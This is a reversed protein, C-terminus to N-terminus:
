KKGRVHDDEIWRCVFLLSLSSRSEKRGCDHRSRDVGNKESRSSLRSGPVGRNGEIGRVLIDDQRHRRMASRRLAFSDNPRSDRSSQMKKKSCEHRPNRRSPLVEARPLRRLPSSRRRSPRKRPFTAPVSRRHLREQFFRFVVNYENGVRCTRRRWILISDRSSSDITFVASDLPLYM